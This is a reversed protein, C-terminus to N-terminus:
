LLRSDSSRWNDRALPATSYNSYIPSEGPYLLQPMYMTFLETDVSGLVGAYVSLDVLGYDLQMVLLALYITKM